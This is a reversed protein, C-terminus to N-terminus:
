DEAQENIIETEEETDSPGTPEEAEQGTESATESETDTNESNDGTGSDPQSEEPTETAKEVVFRLDTATPLERIVSGDQEQRAEHALLAIGGIQELIQPLETLRGFALMDAQWLLYNGDKVKNRDNELRLYQAVKPNAKIYRAM